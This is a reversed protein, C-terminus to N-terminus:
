PRGRQETSRWAWFIGPKARFKKILRNAGAAKKSVIGRALAPDIVEKSDGESWLPGGAPTSCGRDPAASGEVFQFYARVSRESGM